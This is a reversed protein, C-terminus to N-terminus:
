VLNYPDGSKHRHILDFKLRVGNVLHSADYELTESSSRNTDIALGGWQCDNAMAKHAQGLYEEADGPGYIELTIETRWLELLVATDPRDGSLVMDSSVWVFVVPLASEAYDHPSPQMLKVTAFGYAVEELKAKMAALIQARLTTPM